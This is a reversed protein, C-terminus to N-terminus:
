YSPWSCASINEAKEACVLWLSFIEAGKPNLHLCSKKFIFNSNPIQKFGVFCTYFELAYHSFL